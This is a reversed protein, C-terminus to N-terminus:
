NYMDAAIKMAEGAGGLFSMTSIYLHYIIEGLRKYFSELGTTILNYLSEVLGSLFRVATGVVAKFLKGILKFM